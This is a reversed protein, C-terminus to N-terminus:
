QTRIVSTDQVLVAAGGSALFSAMQGQMELTAPLSAAPSL